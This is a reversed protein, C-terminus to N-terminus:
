ASQLDRFSFNVQLLHNREFQFLWGATGGKLVHMRHQPLFKCSVMMFWRSNLPYKMRPPQARASLDCMYPPLTCRTYGAVSFSVDFSLRFNQMYSKVPTHLARIAFAFDFCGFVVQSIRSRVHPINLVCEISRMVRNQNPQRRANSLAFLVRQAM